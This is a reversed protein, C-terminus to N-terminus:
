GSLSNKRAMFAPSTERETIMNWNLRGRVRKGSVKAQM